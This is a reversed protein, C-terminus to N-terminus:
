KVLEGSVRLLEIEAQKAQFRLAILRFAADEFTRQAERIEIATAQSLEYKKLILDLYQQAIKLNEAELDLRNIANKYSEYV